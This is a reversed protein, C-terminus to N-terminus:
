AEGGVLEHLHEAAPQQAPARLMSSREATAEVTSGIRSTRRRVLRKAKPASAIVASDSAESRMPLPSNTQRIPGEPQPLDVSSRMTPPKSAGVSPASSIHPLGTAPGPGSRPM